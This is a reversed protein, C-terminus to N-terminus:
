EELYYKWFVKFTGLNFFFYFYWHYIIMLVVQHCHVKESLTFKNVIGFHESDLQVLNVFLENFILESDLFLRLGLSHPSKPWNLLRPPDLIAWQSFATEPHKLKWGFEVFLVEYSLQCIWSFNSVEYLDSLSM